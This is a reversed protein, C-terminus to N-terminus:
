VNGDTRREEIRVLNMVIQRLDSIAFFSEELGFSRALRQFKIRAEDLAFHLDVSVPRGAARLSLEERHLRFVFNGASTLPAIVHRYYIGLAFIQQLVATRQLYPRLRASKSSDQWNALRRCKYEYEREMLEVLYRPLGALFPQLM